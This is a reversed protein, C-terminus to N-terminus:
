PTPAPAGQPRIWLEITLEERESGTLTVIRKSDFGRSNVLYDSIETSRTRVADAKTRSGPHIIVYGTSSPDNQLEITFNDLRAKEDNRSVDPFKDFKRGVIPAPFQIMCRAACEEEYGSMALSAEIARGEMGTTDVTISSTGQGSIITGASITWYYIPPVNGKGGNLTSTFTVPKGAVIQDPCAIGVNPCAVKARSVCRVEVMTSAFAECSDNGTGTFITLFAKHQGPLAGSLNWTVAAGEGEIRGSTARWVYRIPSGNPSTARATLQVSAGTGECSEVLTRDSALTVVPPVYKLAERADQALVAAGSLHLAVLAIPLFLRTPHLRFM